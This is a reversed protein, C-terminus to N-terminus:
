ALNEPQLIALAEKLSQIEEERAQVRDEYSLGLDVCMPKLKQYYANAADLEEQTLALEQKLSLILDDTQAKNGEKHKMTTEKVAKDQTSEAMFKDYAEQAADEASATEAELRAFDSLVVELMGIIGGKSAQMGTYPARQAQAMEDALGAGGQLFAGGGAKAYFAKLISTAKEVAVQAVKADEITKTNVAKEEGRLTTAEAQEALITAIGDALETIEQALQASEATKQELDATLQEVEAQKNERTLKNTGLETDCYAKSEAEANAQEMLKVILEKIMKKVKVFPDSQMHEAVLALYKSGTKHVQGQLFAIARQRAASEDTEDKEGRLQALSTARQGVQVLTPLYTDATGTVEGSELIEMAQEIAHVEEARTVQNKEFESSMTDCEALTDSLKTEDEAKGKQTMALDEKGKAADELRSAKTATKKAASEKDYKIDDTLKQLLIQYNAKANMEEEELVKRQDQFKLRLKELMAVVGGSQFEYANAEPAGEDASAETQLFAAIVAKAKAPIQPTNQL